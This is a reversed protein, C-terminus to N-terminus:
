LTNYYTVVKVADSLKKLNLKNDNVFQDILQMKDAMFSLLSSKNLYLEKITNNQAIYYVPRGAVFEKTVIKTYEDKVESVYKFNKILLDIQGECLVQYFFNQSQKDVAPYGTKLIYQSSDKIDKGL